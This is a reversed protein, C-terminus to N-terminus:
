HSGDPDLQTAMKAPKEPSGQHGRTTGRTTSTRHTGFLPSLWDLTLTLLDRVEARPGWSSRAVPQAQVVTSTLAVVLLGVAILRAKFSVIVTLRATFSM